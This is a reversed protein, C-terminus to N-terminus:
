MYADENCYAKGAQENIGFPLGEALKAELDVSLRREKASIEAAEAM